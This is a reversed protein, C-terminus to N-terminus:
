HTTPLSLPSGATNSTVPRVVPGDIRSESLFDDISPSLLPRSEQQEGVLQPPSVCHPFCFVFFSFHQLLLIPWLLLRCSTAQSGFGAWFSIVILQIHFVELKHRFEYPNLHIPDCSFLVNQPHPSYSIKIFCFWFLLSPSVLCVVCLLLVALIGQGYSNRFLDEFCLIMFRSLNCLVYIVDLKLIFHLLSLTVM